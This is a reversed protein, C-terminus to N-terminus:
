FSHDNRLYPRGMDLGTGVRYPSAACMNLGLRVESWRLWSWSMWICPCREHTLSSTYSPDFLFSKPYKHQKNHCGLRKFVQKTNGIASVCNQLMRDTAGLEHRNEPMLLIAAQFRQLPRRILASSFPKMAGTPVAENAVNKQKCLCEPFEVASLM